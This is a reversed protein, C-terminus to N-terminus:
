KITELLDPLETGKKYVDGGLIVNGLRTKKFLILLKIFKKRDEKKTLKDFYTKETNRITAEGYFNAMNRKIHLEPLISDINKELETYEEEGIVINGFRDDYRLSLSKLIDPLFSFKSFSISKGSLELILSDKRTYHYTILIIISEWKKGIKWLNELYKKVSEEPEIGFGSFEGNSQVIREYIKDYMQGFTEDKIRRM